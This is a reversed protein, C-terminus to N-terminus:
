AKGRKGVFPKGAPNGPARSQPSGRFRATAARAFKLSYLAELRPIAIIPLQGSVIRGFSAGQQMGLSDLDSKLVGTDGSAVADIVVRGDIVQVLSNATKFTSSKGSALYNSYEEYLAMLEPAVKATPEARNRASQANSSACSGICAILCLLFLSWIQGTVARYRRGTAYNIVSKM